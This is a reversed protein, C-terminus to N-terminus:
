KMIEFFQVLWGDELCKDKVSGLSHELSRRNIRIDNLTDEVDWYMAGNETMVLIYLNHSSPRHITLLDIDM